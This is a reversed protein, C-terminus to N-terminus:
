RRITLRRTVEAKDNIYVTYLYVGPKLDQVSIRHVAEASSLQVAKVIRGTIDTFAIKAQEYGKLELLLEVFESAPNPYLSGIRSGTLFKAVSFTPTVEFTVLISVSDNPSEDVFFTYMIQGSRAVGDKDPYVHGSFDVSNTAGAAISIGIPSISVKPEFCFGWCIANSDVLANNVNYYRKVKVVKASSSVNKIAAKAYIDDSNFANGMVVSDFSVIQM